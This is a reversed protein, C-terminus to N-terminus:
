AAPTQQAANRQTVQDPASTSITDLRFEARVPEFAAGTAVSPTVDTAPGGTSPIYGGDESRQAPPRPPLAQVL